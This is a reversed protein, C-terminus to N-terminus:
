KHTIKPLGVTGSSARLFRRLKRCTADLSDQEAESIRSGMFPGGDGQLLHQLADTVEMKALEHTHDALEIPRHDLKTITPPDDRLTFIPPPDDVM